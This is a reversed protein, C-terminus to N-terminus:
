VLKSREERGGSRLFRKFVIGYKVTNPCIVEMYLCGFWICSFVPDYEPTKRTTGQILTTKPTSCDGDVSIQPFPIGKGLIFHFNWKQGSNKDADLNEHSTRKQKNIHLPKYFVVVNCRTQVLQLHQIM